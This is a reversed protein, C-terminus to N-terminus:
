IKCQLNDVITNTTEDRVEDTLSAISVVTVDTGQITFIQSLYLVDEAQQITFSIISWTMVSGSCAINKNSQVIDDQIDTSMNQRLTNINAQIFDWFNSGIPINTQEILLSGTQSTRTDWRETNTKKQRYNPITFDVHDVQITQTPISWCASLWLLCITALLIKKLM